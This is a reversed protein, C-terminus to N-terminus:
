VSMSAVKSIPFCLPVEGERVKRPIYRFVISDSAKGMKYEERPKSARLVSVLKFIMAKNKKWVLQSDSRELYPSWHRPNKKDKKWQLKWGSSSLFERLVDQDELYSSLAVTIMSMFLIEERSGYLYRAQNGKEWSIAPPRYSTKVSYFFETMDESLYGSLYASGFWLDLRMKHYQQLHIKSEMTDLQEWRDRDEARLRGRDEDVETALRDMLTEVGSHPIIYGTLKERRGYFGIYLVGGGLNAGPLTFLEWRQYANHAYEVVKELPDTMLELKLAGLQIQNNWALNILSAVSKEGSVYVTEIDSILATIGNKTVVKAFEDPYSSNHIDSIRDISPSSDIQVDAKYHMPPKSIRLSHPLAESPEIYTWSVVNRDPNLCKTLLSSYGYGDGVVLINGRTDMLKQSFFCDHLDLIRYLSNTPLRYKKALEVETYMCIQNTPRRYVGSYGTQRPMDAESLIQYRERRCPIIQLPQSAEPPSQHVVRVALTYLAGEPLITRRLQHLMRPSLITHGRECRMNFISDSNISDSWRNTMAATYCYDCRSQFVKDLCIINKAQRTVDPILNEALVGDCRKPTLGSTMAGILSMKAALSVSEATIPFTAPMVSWKLKQIRAISEQWCFFGGLHVFNSTDSQRVRRMIRRQQLQFTPYDSGAKLTESEMVFLHGIIKRIVSVFDLKLYGERDATQLDWQAEKGKATYFIRQAARLSMVDELTNNALLPTEEIEDRAIVLIENIVALRHRVNLEIKEKKLYLYPNTTREPILDLSPVEPLDELTDDIPVICDPCSRFFRTMRKTPCEGLAKNVIAYQILGMVCQFHLTVNETGKLYQVFTNTSMHLFTAPGYLPMWLSGHQTSMDLYRHAMSGSVMEPIYLVEEIPLDTVAGLLMKILEAFNSDEEIFWGITRVLNIPRLVLPETGYAAKAGRTTLKERTVSGLYPLAKGTSYIMCSRDSTPADDIYCEIWSDPRDTESIDESLFHTPYPVSVAKIQKQWSIDRIIRVWKNPCRTTLPLGRSQLTRWGFYSYLRMEGKILAGVVDKSALAMRSLTVTKDVKSTIATCYGYLTAGLIDHLFRPNLSDTRTLAEALKSIEKDGSIELIESFWVAFQSRKPLAELSKDIMRKIVSTANPPVLLNLATPDQILHQANVEPSVIPKIWNILYGRLKGTSESAIAFLWCMDRSVPDSFGRMIMEYLTLTNYGGLSRPITVILKMLDREDIEEDSTEQIKKGSPLRLKIAWEEGSVHPACGCLPHYNSFIIACCLHQWKAIAYSVMPHVDCMSAAQANASIAGLANSLTMLDENSFAFVRSIRKLSMALPVARYIPTKGYAFLEESVWTELPKIPLGLNAFLSVLRSKFTELTNTIELVAPASKLDGTERAARSYITLMLVQNDGQGMLHTKIGMEDCISSILVATFVTWGKQRLGEFGGVHGTYACDPNTGPEIELEDTLLLDFSGDALYIISKKFIDYTRNFIEPLGFLRGMERFVGETMWRRFNLNWKEFDINLCFTISDSQTSSAQSKTSIIMEKQLALMSKTMTVGEIHPIIHDAIMSESVVSFARMDFSMLAFMRPVMNEEREKPYLGIIRHKKALGSPNRDIKRLLKECDIVGDKMAKLPGRRIHPDMQTGGKRRLELWEERNPSVAKDAIILSLNFSKPFPFTELTNVSDWDVLSYNAHKPNVLAMQALQSLLYSGEIEGNLNHNPYVRHKEYYSLYFIEKFKREALTPIHTLNMKDATGLLRVKRVGANPDVIPHGWLRFLGGIQSLHHPNFPLSDLYSVLTQAYDRLRVPLGMITERLYASPDYYTGDNNKILMGNIIAEFTKVVTYFDNGEKLLGKDWLSFVTKLVTESPYIEQLIETGLQTAIMINERESFKDTLNRFMDLTIMGEEEPYKVYILDGFLYFIVGYTRVVPVELEENLMEYGLNNVHDPPERGSSLAMVVILAEQFVERGHTYHTSISKRDLYSIVQDHLDGDTMIIQRLCGYELKLTEVLLEQNAISKPLSKNAEVMLYGLLKGQDVWRLMWGLSKMRDFCLQERHRGKRSRFRELSPTVLASRLHYDGLGRARRWLGGDDLDM